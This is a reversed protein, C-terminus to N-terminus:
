KAVQAAASYLVQPTVAGVLVRGNNTILVSILSTKILRGSGWSGSVPTASKVLANLVEGTDGNLGSGSSKPGGTAQTAQTLASSPLNAVALWGSGITSAIGSAGARVSSRSSTSGGTAGCRM